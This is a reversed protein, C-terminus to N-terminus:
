PFAVNVFCLRRIVGLPLAFLSLCVSLVCALPWLFALCDAGEEGALHDCHKVPYM